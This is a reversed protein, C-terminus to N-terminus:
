CCSTVLNERTSSRSHARTRHSVSLRAVSISFLHRIDVDPVPRTRDLLPLHGSRLLHAGRFEQLPVHARVQVHVDGGAVSRPCVVTIWSSPVPAAVTRISRSAPRGTNALSKGKSSPGETYALSCAKPRGSRAAASRYWTTSGSAQIPASFTSRHRPASPEGPRRGPRRRRRRGRRPWPAPPASAPGAARLRVQPDPRRVGQQDGPLQDLRALRSALTLRRAGRSRGAPRPCAPAARRAEGICRRRSEEGLAVPLEPGDM